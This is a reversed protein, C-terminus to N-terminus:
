RGVTLFEQSEEGGVSGDFREMGSEGERISWERNTPSSDHPIHGITVMLASELLDPIARRPNGQDYNERRGGCQSIRRDEELHHGTAPRVAHKRMLRLDVGVLQKRNEPSSGGLQSDLHRVVERPSPKM